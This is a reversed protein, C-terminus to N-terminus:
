FDKAALWSMGTRQMLIALTGHTLLENTKESM